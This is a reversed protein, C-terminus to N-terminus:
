AQALAAIQGEDLRQVTWETMPRAGLRRYFALAPENEDLCSWEFRGCGQAQAIRALAKMLALGYGKGRHEPKVFLDELYLGPCGLFTSYNFFYLVFGAAEGNERAILVRAYAHDFLTRELDAERATVQDELNEYAALGQILQLIETVDARQAPEITLAM